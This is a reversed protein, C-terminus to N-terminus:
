FYKKFGHITYTTMYKITSILSLKFEKRYLSWQIFAMKIKNSSLSGKSGLRYFSFTDPCLEITKSARIAEYWFIYDQRRRLHEKFRIQNKHIIEKKIIVSSTAFPNFKLLDKSQYSKDLTLHKLISGKSTITKYNLYSFDVLNKLIHSIQKELKHPPWADDSDLFAVLIGSAELLGINRSTAAGSNAKTKFIRIRKDRNSLEKIVEYTKDTSCDDIIIWEWNTYTQSIVSQYTERIYEQSNFCPTIISVKKM